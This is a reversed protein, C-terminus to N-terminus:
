RRRPRGPWPTPRVTGARPQMLAGRIPLANDFDAFPLYECQDRTLLEADVGSLRM